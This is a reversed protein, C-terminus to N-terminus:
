PQGQRGLPDLALTRQKLFEIADDDDFPLESSAIPIGIVVTVGRRYKWFNALLYMYGWTDSYSNIWEGPYRGYRLFVPVLYVDTGLEQAAERAIRIAGKKYENVRGDLHTHGEPHMNLVQGTTVIKVAADHAPGGHGPTIDVCFGGMPGAILAGLGFCATMVGQAAMYRAPRNLVQPMVFVDASNPHNPAVIMAPGHLDLNERGIVTMRGVQIFMLTRTVRDLWRMGRVTPPPALYGCTSVNKAYERARRWTPTFWWAFISFLMAVALLLWALLSM